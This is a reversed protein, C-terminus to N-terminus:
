KRFGFVRRLDGALKTDSQGRQTIVQVTDVLFETSMVTQFGHHVGHLAAEDLIGKHRAHGSSHETTQSLRVM